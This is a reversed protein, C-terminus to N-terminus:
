KFIIKGKDTDVKVSQGASIKKEILELALKDLIDTQIVRKLPRAGFTPDYGKKTLYEKAEDTLSIKIKKDSLRAKLLGVQLEVIKGLDDRTLSDFIIIEDVRNLFEPKFKARLETMVKEHTKKKSARKGSSDFGIDSKGAWDVLIQSGINSTMIIITNKFNVKRGKADTLQGDDLVQLMINFVEPHAKEIEDFLVVSYPRRRIAETLQGGEDYGVYGPPSGILKAVSHQEMYESMDVRVMADEDNFMFEALARALETKGVGTPGLFIFSGIPRKEEAIGARSRRVANSVAEIAVKQGIVRKALGDEMRVLKQEESELMKSVPIGTWRAVVQAIDEEDVEEKLIRQDKQINALKKELEKIQKEAEPIKSYRIEAVQKLEGEREKVEAKSKLKDIQSKLSQIKSIINKENKWHLELQKKQENIESLEKELVSLKEKSDKDKEKKLAQKEIELQIARRHLKDLEEPMSDIELRLASTAEDILDVAKDPLFRDSIYRHSLEAAAVLAADIIRVGHHVEYKEKIGRLIAVTDEVSPEGIYVPQFRRELAADKEIHKQYEKLTTAGIAHLSGRALAPKLMNSADVAGEAGGAGVITHLEDIFLVIKGAAAEIEKIVAKFREEFEGRFKSGALMSGIDLAVVEKDKLSEPVDGSVIRQALGEVLATKGTGPEGILVPNNKTRRSLIQIARRIEDDRGIVPDLKEERALKTLNQSYKELAQYTKEPEPSDVRQTGRVEKLVKLVKDYTIKFLELLARVNSKVELMALLLHETSIYEDKLKSAEKQSQDLVAKMEQTIMVQGMSEPGSVKPLKEIEEVVKDKLKEDDVEMKKLIPLVIGESQTVLALMLHLADIQQQGYEQAVSGANQIAEMSKTTFNQPNLM